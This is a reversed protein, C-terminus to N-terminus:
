KCSAGVNETFEAWIGELEDILLPLKEVVCQQAEEIDSLPRVYQGHVVVVKGGLNCKKRSGRVGPM